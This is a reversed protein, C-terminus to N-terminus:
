SRGRNPLGARVQAPHTLPWARPLEGENWGWICAPNPDIPSPSCSFPGPGARVQM